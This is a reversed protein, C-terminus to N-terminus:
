SNIKSPSRSFASVAIAAKSSFRNRIKFERKRRGTFCIRELHFAAMASIASEGPAAGMTSGSGGLGKVVERASSVLDLGSADLAGAGSFLPAERFVEGLTEWSNETFFEM